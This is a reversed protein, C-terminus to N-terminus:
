LLRDLIMQGLCHCFLLGTTHFIVQKWQGWTALFHTFAPEFLNIQSCSTKEWLVRFVSQPIMERQPLISLM